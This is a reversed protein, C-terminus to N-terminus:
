VQNTSTAAEWSPLSNLGPIVRQLRGELRLHDAKTVVGSIRSSFDGIKPKGAFQGKIVAHGVFGDGQRLDTWYQFFAM